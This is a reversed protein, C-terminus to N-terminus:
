NRHRARGHESYNAANFIRERCSRIRRFGTLKSVSKPFIGWVILAPRDALKYLGGELGQDGDLSVRGCQSGAM